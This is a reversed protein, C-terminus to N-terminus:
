PRWPCGGTTGLDDSLANETIYAVDTQIVAAAFEAAPATSAILRLPSGWSRMALERLDDGNSLSAPSPVVFLVRPPSDAPRVFYSLEFAHVDELVDVVTGQNFQRHLPDGLTGSWTYEILEPLGNNDRDAVVLRVSTASRRDFMIASRLEATIDAATMGGQITNATTSNPNAAQSALYISSALGMLLLSSAAISILLEMLTYAPRRETQRSHVTKM